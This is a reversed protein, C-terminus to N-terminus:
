GLLADRLHISRLKFLVRGYLELLDCARMANLMVVLRQHGTELMWDPALVLTEDVLLAEAELDVKAESLMELSGQPRKEVGKVFRAWDESVTERREGTRLFHIKDTLPKNHGSVVSLLHAQLTERLDKTHEVPRVFRTLLADRREQERTGRVQPDANLDVVGRM